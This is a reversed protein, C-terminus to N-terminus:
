VGDERCVCVGGSGGGSESRRAFQSRDALGIGVCRVIALTASAITRGDGVGGAVGVCVCAMDM